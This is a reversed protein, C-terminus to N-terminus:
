RKALFVDCENAGDSLVNPLNIFFQFGPQALRVSLLRFVVRADDSVVVIM